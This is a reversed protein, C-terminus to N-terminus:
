IALPITRFELEMEIAVLMALTKRFRLSRHSVNYKNMKALRGTLNRQSIKLSDTSRAEPNYYTPLDPNRSLDLM